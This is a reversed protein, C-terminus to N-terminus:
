LGLLARVQMNIDAQNVALIVKIGLDEAADLCYQQDDIFVAQNPNVQLQELALQYFETDPKAMGEDSSLLVVDFPEYWGHERIAAASAPFTNSLVGVKRGSTKIDEVLQVMEATPAFKDPKIWIDRQSTSLTSGHEKEILTWFENEDVLGRKLQNAGLALLRNAEEKTVKLSEVFNNAAEDPAGSPSMVGGWDFIVAKIM